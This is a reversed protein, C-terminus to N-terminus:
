SFTNSSKIIESISYPTFPIGDAKYFKSQFEVWHLRLAHLFCELVDMCLLVGSTASWFVLFGIFIYIPNGTSIASLMSKEWFVTALETHALSLAWLRLYSATNSVMGLVFEVTEIAQHIVIEMFDEEEAKVHEEVSASEELTDYPFSSAHDNFAGNNVLSTESCLVEHGKRSKSEWMRFLMFPKALLLVPICGVAVLLLITQITGQRYFMPEDVNGIQLIINILTTILNPPSCGDGTGGYNLPCMEATTSNVTCATGSPTTCSTDLSTCHTKTSFDSFCTASLMRSEWDIMWKLFILFVMYGFLCLDFILMPIFEFYFDLKEKFYRANIGKLCIGVTMQVIGLIVSIKMKMSNMYLLDNEARHWAPDVGFPYVTCRDGECTPQGFTPQGVYSDGTRTFTYRSGFLDLGLAFYDNYILGCYVSFFGMLFLMWRAMYMSSVMESIGRKGKAMSSYSIVLFLGFGLLISGHGIDGYMVGYLFPFTAATFLAPNAEKYRPVGYTNVFEQFPWRFDNLKFHTPAKPWPKQLIDVYSPMSTDISTHALRVAAQAAMLQSLPIWGEGRLIGRVDPKFMNLAHFVSKERLVCWNWFELHATYEDCLQLRSDRNRVLTMYSDHLETYNADMTEAVVTSNDMDPLPYVKASFADMIKKIKAEIAVSKYFVIYVMKKTPNGTVPDVIFQDINSFYIYCNGRTSRFLQREFRNRCECNVTGAMYSFKLEHNRSYHILGMGDEEHRSGRYSSTRNFHRSEDAQMMRTLCIPTVQSTLFIRLRAIACMMASVTYLVVSLDNSLLVCFYM